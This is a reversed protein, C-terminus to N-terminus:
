KETDTPYKEKYYSHNLWPKGTESEIVVHSSGSSIGAPRNKMTVWNGKEKVAYTKSGPSYYVEVGPYYWTVYKTQHGQGKALVQPISLNKQKSVREMVLEKQCGFIGTFVLFLLSIYKM